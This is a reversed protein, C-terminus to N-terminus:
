DAELDVNDAAPIAERLRAEIRDVEDGTMEVIDDAFESLFAHLQEPEAIEAQLEVLDKGVLWKEALHHGDMEIEASIRLANAGSVVARALVVKEVAEDNELIDLMTQRDQASVSRGILMARNKQMLFLAVFGLLVGILLSGIGDWYANGTWVGLGITVLALVVGFVAASDEMLVAVGFPDDTTRVHEWFGLSRRRADKLLAWVALGLSAGEAVLALLLIGINLTQPGVDTHGALLTHVGHAVTVGCGVFFIGVASMLAWIFADRGYGFPHEDDAPQQSRRMGVVLLAQNGVDAASHIGEALMTGSGTLAFGIFKAVMVLSNAGIAGYVATKSGGAM